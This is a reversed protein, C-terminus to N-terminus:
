KKAYFKKYKEALVARLLKEEPTLEIEGISVLYRFARCISEPSTLYEILSSCCEVSNFTNWYNVVLYSYSLKSSPKSNCLELVNKCTNSKM